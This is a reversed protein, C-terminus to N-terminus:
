GLFSSLGSSNRYFEPDDALKLNKVARMIVNGSTLIRVKSGFAFLSADGEAAPAFPDKNLLQLNVPDVLIDTTVTYSRPQMQAWAAAAVAGTIALVLTLKRGAKLWVLSRRLDLEMFGAIRDLTVAEEEPLPVKTRRGPLTKVPERERASTGARVTDPILDLLSGEMLMLAENAMHSYIYLPMTLSENRSRDVPSYVLASFGAEVLIKM